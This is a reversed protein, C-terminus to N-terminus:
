RPSGARCPRRRVCGVGATAPWGATRPSGLLRESWSGPAPICPSAASSVPKHVIEVTTKLTTSAWDVFRGDLPGAMSIQLTSPQTLATGITATRSPSRSASAPPCADGALAVVPPYRMSMWPPGATRVHAVTSPRIQLRSSAVQQRGPRPPVAGETAPGRSRRQTVGEGRGERRRGRTGLGGGECRSEHCTRDQGHHSTATRAGRAAPSGVGGAWRRRIRLEAFRHTRIPEGCRNAWVAADDLEEVASALRGNQILDDPQQWKPSQAKIIGGNLVESAPRGSGM